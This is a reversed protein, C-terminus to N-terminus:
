YDIDIQVTQSLYIHTPIVKSLLILFLSLNISFYPKIGLNSYSLFSRCYYQSLRRFLSLSLNALLRITHTHPCSQVPCFLVSQNSLAVLCLSLSVVLSRRNEARRVDRPAACLGGFFAGNGTSSSCASRSICGCRSSVLRPTSILPPRRQRRPGLPRHDFIGCEPPHGRQNEPIYLLSTDHRRTAIANKRVNRITPTCM